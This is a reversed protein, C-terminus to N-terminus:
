AGGPLVHQYEHQHPGHEGDGSEEGGGGGGGYEVEGSDGCGEEWWCQQQLVSVQAVVLLRGWPCVVVEGGVEGRRWGVLVVEWRNQNGEVELWGKGEEGLWGMGEEGLWGMGEEGLWGKGEEGPEQLGRDEELQIDAQLM